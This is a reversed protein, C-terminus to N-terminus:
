RFISLNVFKLPALYRFISLNIQPLLIYFAISLNIKNSALRKSM